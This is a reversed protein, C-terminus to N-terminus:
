YAQFKTNSQRPKSILLEFGIKWDLKSLWFEYSCFDIKNKYEMFENM